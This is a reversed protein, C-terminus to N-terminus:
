DPGREDQRPAAIGEAPIGAGDRAGFILFNKLGDLEARLEQNLKREAELGSTLESVRDELEVREAGLSQIKLSDVAHYHAADVLSISSPGLVADSAIALFYITRCGNEYVGFRNDNHQVFLLLGANESNIPILANGNVNSQGVLNFNSFHRGLLGQFEALSLERKHFPNIPEFPGSYVVINPTSMYLIGGPRLVRRIELLFAEHEELHELTEMSVVVDFSADEAPIATASGQLYNLNSARYADKSHEVAMPDVDVGVVSKATTALYASGYGDGSAIDLVDLGRCGPECYLYRHWHEIAIVGGLGGSLREGTFPLNSSLVPVYILRDPEASSM